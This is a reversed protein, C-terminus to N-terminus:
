NDLDVQAKLIEELIDRTKSYEMNFPIITISYILIIFILGPTEHYKIISFLISCIMFTLTISVFNLLRFKINIVSGNVTEVINGQIFPIFSNQGKFVPRINFTRNGVKGVFLKSSKNYNDFRFGSYPEVNENLIVTLLDGTLKSRLTLKKYPFFLM